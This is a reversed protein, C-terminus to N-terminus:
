ATKTNGIKDVQAETILQLTVTEPYTPTDPVSVSYSDIKRILIDSRVELHSDLRNQVFADNFRISCWDGPVYSGVEPSVSGNVSINFNSIPPLSDYLFQNAYAQLQSESLDSIAAHEVQDLLPWPFELNGLYSEASSASYPQSADSGLSSDNGAVWFRTAADEASEEMTAQMVNGPHEFIVKDAGFAAPPLPDNYREGNIYYREQLYHLNEAYTVADQIVRFKGLHDGDIGYKAIAQQETLKIPTVGDNAFGITPLIVEFGDISTSFSEITSISGDLNQYQPRRTLDITGKVVPKPAIPYLDYKMEGGPLNAVYNTLSNPKFPMFVLTRSFSNTSPEYDCDIRYEFGNLVNSYADLIEGAYKLESGRIVSNTTSYGSKELTSYEINVNNNKFSGYSTFVVSPYVTATGTTKTEEVLTSYTTYILTNETVGDLIYEGDLFQDVSAIVVVDNANFGHPASTTLTAVGNSAVAKKIIKAVNGSLNIESQASETPQEYVFTDELPIDTAVYKGDFGHGVNRVQIKQGPVAWHLGDVKITAEMIGTDPNLARSATLGNFIYSVGPELETELISFDRDSFDVMIEDLMERMYHYTDSRVNASCSNDVLNHIPIQELTDPDTDGTSADFYFVTNTPAPSALVPYYGAFKYFNENGFTLEVPMDALFNYTSDTLTVMGVGDTISISANHASAWTKWVVRHHLYSTFESANIQLNRDIINYSRSWIIGGWVCKNDRVVYLATKGPVTTNYLDLNATAEIVPISGSFPGAEKISRGYSVGRFPVEALFTNSVLDYLFYKYVSVNQRQMAM